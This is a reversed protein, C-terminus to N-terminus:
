QKVTSECDRGMRGDEWGGTRGNECRGMRRIRRIRRIGWEGVGSRM